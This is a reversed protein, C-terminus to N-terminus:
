KAGMACCLCKLSHLESVM